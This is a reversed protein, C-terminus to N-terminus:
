PFPRGLPNEKRLLVMGVKFAHQYMTPLDIKEQRLYSTIRHGYVASPMLSGAEELVEAAEAEPATWATDFAAIRKRNLSADGYLLEYLGREVLKHFAIQHFHKQIEAMAQQGSASLPIRYTVRYDSKFTYSERNEWLQKLLPLNEKPYGLANLMCEGALVGGRHNFHNEKLLVKAEPNAKRYASLTAQLDAVPIKAESCVDLIVKNYADVSLDKQEEPLVITAVILKAHPGRLTEVIKTLTTRYADLSVKKLVDEVPPLLVAYRMKPSVPKKKLKELVAELNNGFVTAPTVMESDQNMGDLLLNIWGGTRGGANIQSDGLVFLEPSTQWGKEVDALQRETLGMAKLIGLAMIQHGRKQPHVGDSTLVNITSKSAPLPNAAKIRAIEAFMAKQLEAIPLNKETATQKLFANYGEAKKNLSTEPDERIPTITSLIVNAGAARCRDIILPMYVKYDDLEVGMGPDPKYVGIKATPDTHWVDNVGASVFVVDPKYDLVDQQLRLLMFASTNGPIGACIPTTKIGVTKLGQVVLRCYGGYAEGGATISDGLFAIRDGDKVGINSPAAPSIQVVGAIFLAIAISKFKM